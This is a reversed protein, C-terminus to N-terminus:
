HRTDTNNDLICPLRRPGFDVRTNTSALVVCNALDFVDVAADLYREVQLLSAAARARNVTVVANPYEHKLHTNTRKSTVCSINTTYVHIYWINNIIIIYTHTWSDHKKVFVTSSHYRNDIITHHLSSLHNLVSLYFFWGSFSMKWLSIAFVQRNTLLKGALDGQCM